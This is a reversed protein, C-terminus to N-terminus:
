RKAFVQELFARVDVIARRMARPDYGISAGRTICPSEAGAPKGEPDLIRGDAQQVFSCAGGNLVQPLRVLMVTSNDFAHPAGEYEVLSVDRGAERARAIWERCAAPPTWDDAGGAFIRLPGGVLETDDRLRTNCAAPYFPLYAAFDPSGPVKYRAHFQPHAAWLTLWGGHSFGMLAIRERDVRPHTALLALARYADSIRNGISLPTRGTCIERLGRGTFSDLALAAYGMKTLEGAWTDVNAGEGGCGHALIVAPVRGSGPPLSLTATIVAVQEPTGPAATRTEIAIRGTPSAALTAAPPPPACGALLLVLAALALRM